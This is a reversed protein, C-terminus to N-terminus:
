TTSQPKAIRYGFGRETLIYTPRTTQDGLKRRLNKVFSCLVRPDGGRDAGSIIRLLRDQSMARDANLTLTTFLKYETATLRVPRGEVTVTRELYNIELEGVRFHKPHGYYGPLRPPRLAARIRVILETPSFPKVVYDLAGAELASAVIEDEGYGSLFIVPVEALEPVDRMLAVGDTDPLMFDLLVLHPQNRRMLHGM